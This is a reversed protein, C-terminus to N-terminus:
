ESTPAIVHELSGPGREDRLNLGDADVALDGEVDVADIRFIGLALDRERPEALLRNRSIELGAIADRQVENKADDCLDRFLRSLWGDSGPSLVCSLFLHLPLSPDCLASPPNCNTLTALPIRSRRVEEGRLRKDKDGSDLPAATTSRTFTAPAGWVASAAPTSRLWARLQATPSTILVNQKQDLVAALNAGAARGSRLRASLVDYSLPTLTLTDGDLAVRLVDHVPVVFSGWDTGRVPTVDLYRDDGVITLYATLDGKESPHEYHIKYSRWEAREVHLTSVDDADRWDGVLSPEWAISDDDYAPHLSLVLCGQLACAAAMLVIVFSLRKAARV